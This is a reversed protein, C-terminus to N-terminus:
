EHYHLDLTKLERVKVQRTLLTYMDHVQKTFARSSDEISGCTRTLETKAEKFKSESDIINAYERVYGSYFQAVGTLSYLLGNLRKELNLIYSEVTNNRSLSYSVVRDKM